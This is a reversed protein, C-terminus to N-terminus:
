GLEVGEKGQLQERLLLRGRRLKTKATSLNLGLDAAITKLKEGEYYYRLFLTREPEDLSDVARWLTEQTEKEEAQRQLDAPAPTEQPLEAAPSWARLRNKAKNSCVTALWPRLPREPDLEASHRWLEVFTDAVAEELEERPLQGMVRYACASVYPTYRRILAELAGASGKQLKQILTKDDLPGGGESVNRNISVGFIPFPKLRTGDTRGHSFLFLFDSRLRLEVAVLATLVGRM